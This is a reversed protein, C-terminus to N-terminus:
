FCEAGYGHRRLGRDFVWCREAREIINDHAMAVKLSEAISYNTKITLLKNNIQVKNAQNWM